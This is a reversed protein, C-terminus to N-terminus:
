FNLIPFNKTNSVLLAPPGETKLLPTRPGLLVPVTGQPGAGCLFHRCGLLGLTIQTGGNESLM